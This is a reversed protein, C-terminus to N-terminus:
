DRQHPVSNNSGVTSIYQDEAPPQDNIHYTFKYPATGNSGTFVVSPQGDGLCVVVGTAATSGDGITGSPLSNITIDAGNDSGIIAPSSGVVRIRYHTGTATGAPITAVVTGNNSVTATAIVNPTVPWTGDGNSLQVSFVNGLYFTGDTTWTVSITSGACYQNTGITAASPETTTITM